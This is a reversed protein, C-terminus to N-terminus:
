NGCKVSALTTAMDNEFSFHAALYKDKYHVLGQLLYVLGLTVCSEHTWTIVIIWSKDKYYNLDTLPKCSEYIYNLPSVIILAVSNVQFLKLKSARVGWYINLSNFVLQYETKSM